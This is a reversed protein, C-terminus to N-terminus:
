CIREGVSGTDQALRAEPHSVTTGADTSCSAAQWPVSEQESNAATQEFKRKLHTSERGLLSECLAKYVTQGGTKGDSCGARRGHEGHVVAFELGVAEM